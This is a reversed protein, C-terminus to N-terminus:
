YYRARQGAELLQGGEEVWVLAPLRPAVGM